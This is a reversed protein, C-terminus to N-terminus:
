NNLKGQNVWCEFHNISASDLANGLPMLPVTVGHMSEIIINANASVSAYTTLDYGQQHSTADHCGSTACNQDILPKITESYFITDPCEDTLVIETIVPPAPAHDKTCSVLVVKISFLLAAVVFLFKINSKKMNM